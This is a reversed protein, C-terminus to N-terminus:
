ADVPEDQEKPIDADHSATEDGQDEEDSGSDASSSQSPATGEVTQSETQGEAILSADSSDSSTEVDKEKFEATITVVGKPMTFTFAGSEEDPTLEIQEGNEDTVTLSGTVYERDDESVLTLKVTEDVPVKTLDSIVTWSDAEDSSQDEESDDTEGAESKIMAVISGGSIDEAIRIEGVMDDNVEGEGVIDNGTLDGENNVVSGENNIIVGNNIIEAGDFNNLRGDNEGGDGNVLTGNNIITGYNNLTHASYNNITGNNTITGTNTITGYNSITAGSEVSTAGSLTLTVGASVILVKGNTLSVSSLSISDVIKVVDHGALFDSFPESNSNGFTAINSTSVFEATVNVAEAPMTFYYNNGSYTIGSISTGSATTVSLTKIEYGSSPAVTLTVNQGSTYYAPNVDTTISGNSSAGSVSTRVGYKNKPTFYGKTGDTGGDIRAFRFTTNSANYTTGLGGVLATSGAFVDADAYASMSSTYWSNNVIITKLLPCSVFMNNFNTVSSIDFSSLDLQTINSCQQFMYSMSQVSSTDFNSLNLSSLNTCKMFMSGMQTAKSTNFGSVDIGTLTSCESFMAGFNSVNSTNFHSVDLQSLAVCGCFMGELNTASSTNIWATNLSQLAICGEFTRKYNTVNSTNTGTANLTRLARCGYFMSEMTTVNSMNAGTMTVTALQECQYFLGAANTTKSFDLGTLDVSTMKSKLNNNTTSFMLSSDEPMYVYDATSYWVVTTGVQWMYIKTTDGDMQMESVSGSPASTTRRFQAGDYILWANNGSRMKNIWKTKDITPISPDTVSVNCKAIFGGDETTATITTTGLEIGSVTATMGTGPTVTAVSEDGSAWVIATNAADAPAVTATLVFTSNKNVAKTANDLTVGTVAKGFTATVAVTVAKDPMVFTYKGADTADQTATVTAGSADTVTVTYTSIAYNTAPTAQITVTTNYKATGATTGGVLSTGTSNVVSVSGNTLTGAGTVNVTYEKPIKDYHAHYTKDGVETNGITRVQTGQTAETYWGDFRYSYRSDATKTVNTPLDVTTGYTYSTVNGANITGGDTNLTVNYSRPSESYVAVFKTEKEIAPLSGNGYETAVAEYTNGNLVYAKWARFTFTKYDTPDKTVTPANPTSGYEVEASSVAAAGNDYDEQTKFWSVLYKNVTTLFRAFFSKDGEDTTSIAATKEGGSASTYWGDFAFTYQATADKTVDTPLTAGVGKTYTTINGSNIKGGNTDLAVKYVVAEAASTPTPTAEGGESGSGGSGGSTTNSDGSGGSNSSGGDGSSSGKNDDTSSPTGTDSTSSNNEAVQTPRNDTPKPAAPVAPMDENQSVTQADGTNTGPKPTSQTDTDETAEDKETAPNLLADVIQDGDSEGSIEENVTNEIYSGAEEVSSIIVAPDGDKAEDIVDAYIGGIAEIVQSIEEITINGTMDGVAVTISETISDVVQIIEDDTLIDQVKLVVDGIVASADHIVTVVANNDTEPKVTADITGSLGKIIAIELPLNNGAIDVADNAAEIMYNSRDGMFPIADDIGSLSLEEAATGYMSVGPTTNLKALELLKKESFGAAKTVRERLKENKQITDLAMAPLDEEKFPEMTFSITADGEAEEDLFITIKMGAPVDAETVENTVPNTAIIHVTGDTVMVTEHGTLDNGVFASTGRIGIAMTSTHVGFSNEPLKETVNFFLNGELLDFELKDGSKKIEGVSTEEMTLLKNEDLSVTVLSAGGTTLKHGSALRMKEVLAKEKGKADCLTVSGVMRQLRISIATIKNMQVIVGTAIAVVALIALLIIILKKKGKGEKENIDKAQNASQLDM